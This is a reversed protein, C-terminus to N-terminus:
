RALTQQVYDARECREAAAHAEAETVPRTRRPCDMKHYGDVQMCVPCKPAKMAAENRTRSVLDAFTECATHATEDLEPFEHTEWFLALAQAGAQEVEIEAAEEAALDAVTADVLTAVTSTGSVRDEFACRNRAAAECAARDSPTYLKGVHFVYSKGSAYVRSVRAYIANGCDTTVIAISYTFAM